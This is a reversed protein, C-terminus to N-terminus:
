FPRCEKGEQRLHPLAITLQVLACYTWFKQANAKLDEEGHLRMLMAVNAAM